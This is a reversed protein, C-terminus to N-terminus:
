CQPRVKLIYDSLREAQDYNNDATPTDYIDALAELDVEHCYAIYHNALSMWEEMSMTTSNLAHETYDDCYDVIGVDIESYISGKGGVDEGYVVSGDENVSLIPPEPSSILLESLKVVPDDSCTSLRNLFTYHKLDANDKSSCTFIGTQIRDGLIQKAFRYSSMLGTAMDIIAISKSDGAVGLLHKILGDRANASLDMLRNKNDNFISLCTEYSMDGRYEPIEDKYWDLLTKLYTPEGFHELLSIIGVHRTLYVYESDIKYRSFFFMKYIKQLMMGDRAVFLLKDIKEAEAVKCIFQVYSYALPGGVCYAFDRWFSCSIDETYRYESMLALHVSSSLTDNKEFFKLYKYNSSAQLFRDIYRDVLYASIGMTRPIAYDSAENDGFHTLRDPSIGYDDLVQSFLEGSGKNKRYESSVYVKSIGEIGNKLLLDSLFSSPLYMDSVCIITKGSELAANLIPVIRPNLHLTQSEYDLEVSKLQQLYDPMESYIEDLTVEKSSVKERARKESEIRYSPFDSNHTEGISYFVDTPNKCSRILLTDFIDFSIVDCKQFLRRPNSSRKDFELESDSLGRRKLDSCVLGYLEPNADHILNLADAIGENLEPGFQGSLTKVKVLPMGKSLSYVPWLTSDRHGAKTANSNVCMDHLYAGCTFKSSMYETLRLEGFKIAADWTMKQPLSDFFDSFLRSNIVNRNFVMFFSQIHYRVDRNDVLGWFDYTKSAMQNLINCLPFVPGYCSDNALILQGINNFINKEKLYQIGISWSGFDFREHRGYIICDVFPSIKDLEANSDFDNDAVYVVYDSCNSLERLYYAVYDEVTGLASYSAFLVCRGIETPVNGRRNTDLTTMRKQLFKSVQDGRIKPVLECVSNIVLNLLKSYKGNPLEAMLRGVFKSANDKNYETIKM